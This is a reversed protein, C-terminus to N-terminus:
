SGLLSRLAERHTRSLRLETGDRLVVSGDGGPLSRLERIRDLQVIASRHIRVFRRADLRGELERLTERHLWTEAGAHIEVYNDQAEIWGIEDLRLFTARTGDRLALM